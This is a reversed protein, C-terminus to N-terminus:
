AEQLLMNIMEAANSYDMVMVTDKIEEIEDKLGDELDLTDLNKIGNSIEGYDTNIFADKIRSLISVLEPPIVLTDSRRIQSFADKLKDRLNRLAESFSPLTDACFSADMKVSAAELKQAMTSLEMAGINALSTKISHAEITFNHMDGAALFEELNGICTDIGKSLLRLANKYVDRQGSVRNLGTQLSLGKIEHIKEWFKINKESDTTSPISETNQKDIMHSSPIWKILIKNLEGKVIPKSLFDNMGAALLMERASTVANATLAIIPTTIGMERIINVAEVGDMEPMMHDMFIIDFKNQRLMEIAQQASAAASPTINYLRLLGCIVNLNITNDDVALVKTDSSYFVKEDLNANHLMTEDGPVKPIVIHFASGQGYTSEVDIQGGMM